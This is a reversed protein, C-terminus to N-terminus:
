DKSNFWERYGTDIAVLEVWYPDPYEFTRKCAKAEYQVAYHYEIIDFLPAAMGTTTNYAWTYNMYIPDESEPSLDVKMQMFDPASSRFAIQAIYEYSYEVSYYDKSWGCEVINMATIKLFYIGTEYGETHSCCDCYTLIFPNKDLYAVVAEAEELTLRDWADAKVQFGTCTIISIFILYKM